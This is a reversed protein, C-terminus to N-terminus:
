KESCGELITISWPAPNTCQKTCSLALLWVGEDSDVGEFGNGEADKLDQLSILWGSEVETSWLRDANEELHLFDDDLEQLTHNPYHGVMVETVQTFFFLGGLATTSMESWSVVLDSMNKPIQVSPIEALNTTYDIKMSDDGVLVTTEEADPDVHFFSLMRSNKGITEGTSAILMFTHTDQSYPYDEAEADFYRQIEELPIEMKDPSTFNYLTESTNADVPFTAIAGKNFDLPLDDMRIDDALEDATLSWLTVLVMDIDDVPNVPEGFLDTTLAGWDFTLDTGAKVTTVEIEVTSDFSYNTADTLAIEDGASLSECYSLQGSTDADGDTDSDSDGDADSDSDGDTDSDGDSDSDGDADADSDTDGDSDGDTDADSDSDSDADGDGTNEDDAAEGCSLAAVFVMTLMLAVYNKLLIRLIDM